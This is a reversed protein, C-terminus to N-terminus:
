LIFVRPNLNTHMVLVVHPYIYVQLVNEKALKVGANVKNVSAHLLARQNEPRHSGHNELRSWRKGFM